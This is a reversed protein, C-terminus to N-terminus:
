GGGPDLASWATRGDVGDLIAGVFAPLHHGEHSSSAARAADTFTMLGSLFASEPSHAWIRCPAVPAAAVAWSSASSDRTLGM